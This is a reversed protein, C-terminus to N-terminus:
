NSFTEPSTYLVVLVGSVFCTLFVVVLTIYILGKIGTNRAHGARELM